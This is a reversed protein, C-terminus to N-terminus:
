QNYLYKDHNIAGDHVDCEVPNKGLDWITAKKEITTIILKDQQRTIEIEEWEGLLEKPIMVGEATVKLKM